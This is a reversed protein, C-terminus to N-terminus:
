WSINPVKWIFLGWESTLSIRVLLSHLVFTKKGKSKSQWILTEWTWIKGMKSQDRPVSPSPIIDHDPPPLPSFPQHFIQINTLDRCWKRSESASAENRMWHSCRRGSRDPSPRFVAGCRRMLQEPKNFQTQLFVTAEEKGRNGMQAEGTMHEHLVVASFCLCHNCIYSVFIM